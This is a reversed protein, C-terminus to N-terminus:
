REILKEALRKKPGVFFASHIDLQNVLVQL